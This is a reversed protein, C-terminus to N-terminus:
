FGNADDGNNGDANDADHQEEDLSEMSKNEVTQQQNEDVEEDHAASLASFIGHDDPANDDDIEM